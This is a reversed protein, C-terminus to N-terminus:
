FRPSQSEVVDALFGLEEALLTLVDDLTVVGVLGGDADMVPMRRVGEESMTRVLDFVGTEPGVTVLDDSMLDGATAASLDADDALALAITRDTLLGVPAHEEVIVVSGVNQSAMTAAVSRIPTERDATVVESQVIQRISMTSVPVALLADLFRFVAALQSRSVTENYGVCLQSFARPVSM